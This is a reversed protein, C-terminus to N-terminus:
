RITAVIPACFMQEKWWCATIRCVFNLVSLGISVFLTIPPRIKSIYDPTQRRNMPYITRCTGGDGFLVRQYTTLNRRGLQQEIIWRKIAEDDGLDTVKNFVYKRHKECARFRGSRQVTRCAEGNQQNNRPLNSDAEAEASRSHSTTRSIKRRTQEEHDPEAMSERCRIERKACRKEFLQPCLGHTSILKRKYQGLFMKSPYIFLVM